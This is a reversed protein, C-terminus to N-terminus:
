LSKTLQSRGLQDIMTEPEVGASDPYGNHMSDGRGRSGCGCGCSFLARACLSVHMRIRIGGVRRAVKSNSSCGSVFLATGHINKAGM